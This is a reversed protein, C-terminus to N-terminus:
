AAQLAPAAIYEVTTRGDFHAYVVDAGVLKAMELAFENRTVDPTKEGRLNERVQVIRKYLDNSTITAGNAHLNEIESSLREQWAAKLSQTTVSM